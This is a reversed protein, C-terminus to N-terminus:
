KILRIAFPYRYEEGKNAKVGGLIFSVLAGIMFAFYLLMSLLWGIIPIFALVISLIMLGIACIWVTIVFNLAEKAHGVVFAKEANDKNMLWIILPGITVLGSLHAILGMTKDDQSVESM